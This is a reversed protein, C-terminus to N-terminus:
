YPLMALMDAFKDIGKELKSGLMMKVMPNLDAKLTLRIKTGRGDGVGASASGVASMVESSPLLQIWLNAQVPSQSTEFKITGKGGTVAPDEREIISLAITGVMPAPVSITDVTLEVDKLKELQSPDQGAKEIQERVAPNTQANDLIPRLNELNSLKSYVAEVPAAIYKVQSEYQAM